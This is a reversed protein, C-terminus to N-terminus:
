GSTTSDAFTRYRGVAAQNAPETKKCLNLTTIKQLIMLFIFNQRNFGHAQDTPYATRRLDAYLNSLAKLDASFGYESTDFIRMAASVTHRIPDADPLLSIKASPSFPQTLILVSSNM